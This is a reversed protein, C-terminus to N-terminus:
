GVQKALEQQVTTTWQAAIPDTESFAILMGVRRVGKNQAHLARPLVIAGGLGAIFERRRM